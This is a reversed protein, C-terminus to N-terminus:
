FSLIEAVGPLTWFCSSLQTILQKIQDMSYITHYTPTPEPDSPWACFSTCQYHNELGPRTSRTVIFYHKDKNKNNFVKLGATNKDCLVAQFFEFFRKENEQAKIIEEDNGHFYVLSDNCINQIKVTKVMQTKDEKLFFHTAKLM